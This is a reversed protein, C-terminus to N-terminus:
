GPWQHKKDCLPVYIVGMLNKKMIQGNELKDHQELVQNRGEAGVPCILRGGPKLQELLASPLDAAAAGVHIADYPQGPEYGKRGDGSVIKVRGKELLEPNGRKINALSDKVLQDIHDIGYVKGTEGVMYAMAATLYGSGSGVDLACAGETLHGELQQLAYVHMHPASITAQYGIPQPSDEFARNRCYHKRDVRRLAEEVRKSKLVEHIKLQDLLDSNSEGHSRWAMNRLIQHKSRSVGMRWSLQVTKKM